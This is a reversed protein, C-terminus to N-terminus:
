LHKSKILNRNKGSKKGKGGSKDKDLATRLNKLEERMLEDVQVRIEAKIEKRKANKILEQDHKQDQEYVHQCAHDRRLIDGFRNLVRVHGCLRVHLCVRAYVRGDACVLAGLSAGVRPSSCAFVIM